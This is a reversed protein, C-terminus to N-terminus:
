ILDWIPNLTMNLLILRKNVRVSYDKGKSIKTTLHPLLVERDKWGSRNKETISGYITMPYNKM